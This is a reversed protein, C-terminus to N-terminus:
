PRIAISLAVHDKGIIGIKEPQEYRAVPPGYPSLWREELGALPRRGRPEIVLRAVGDEDVVGIGIRV